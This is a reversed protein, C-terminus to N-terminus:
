LPLSTLPPGSLAICNGRPAWTDAIPEVRRCALICPAVHFQNSLFLLRPLMMGVKVCQGFATSAFLEAAPAHLAGRAIAQIEARIFYLGENM